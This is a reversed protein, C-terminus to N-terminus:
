VLPLPPARTQHATPPPRAVPLATSAGEPLQAAQGLPAPHTEEPRLLPATLLQCVPCTDPDHVPAGAPTHLREIRTSGGDTAASTDHLPAITCLVLQTLALTLISRRLALHLLSRM